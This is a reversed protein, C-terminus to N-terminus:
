KKAKHAAVAKPFCAKTLRNNGYWTVILGERIVDYGSDKTPKWKKILHSYAKGALDPTPYTAKFFTFLATQKSEAYYFNSEAAKLYPMFRKVEPGYSFGMVRELYATDDTKIELKALKWSAFDCDKKAKPPAAFALAAFLLPLIGM